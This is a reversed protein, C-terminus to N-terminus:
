GIHINIEMKTLSIHHGHLISDAYRFGTEAILALGKGM